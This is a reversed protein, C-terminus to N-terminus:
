RVVMKYLHKDFDFSPNAKIFSEKLLDSVIKMYFSYGIEKIYGSQKTGLLEGVGRINMDERSIDLGKGIEYYNSLAELRAETNGPLKSYLFYAFAQKDGRGVRGRLQYMQALGLKDPTNVIITNVNDFDVGNEIINTTVLVSIEKNLFKDFVRKVEDGSMRGHMIGVSAGCLNSILSAYTELERIRNHVFYVQGDRSLEKNIATAIIEDSRESFVNAISLRNPPPTKLYSISKLGVYLLGMTRPIPTASMSYIHMSSRIAKVVEKSKAGFKQEEDLLFVSVNKLVSLKNLLAQTGVFVCRNGTSLENSTIKSNRNVLFVQYEMGTIKTLDGLRSKITNFHQNSLITTPAVMVANGGGILAGAIARIGIETKGFGVDGIILRDVPVESSLDKRIDDTALLQDYTDRYKFSKCFKDFAVLESRSKIVKDISSRLRNRYIKVTEDIASQTDVKIKRVTRQWIRSNLGTLNPKKNDAFYSSVKSSYELPVSLTDNNDYLIKIYMKKGVRYISDYIGVGHDEHVVFDGIKYGSFPNQEFNLRGSLERESLIISENWIIAEKLIGISNIDKYTKSKKSTVRYCFDNLKDRDGWIEPPIDARYVGLSVAGIIDSGKDLLIVRELVSEASVKPTYVFSGVVSESGKMSAIKVSDLEIISEYTEISLYEIKEVKTFDFSIKCVTGIISDWVFLTDGVISYEGRAQVKLVRVFENDPKELFSVISNYDVSSDGLSIEITSVTNIYNTYAVFSSFIVVETPASEGRLLFKNIAEAPNSFARWYFDKIVRNM